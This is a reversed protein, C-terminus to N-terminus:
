MIGMSSLDRLVVFDPEINNECKKTVTYGNHWILTAEALKYNIKFSFNYYNEKQLCSM